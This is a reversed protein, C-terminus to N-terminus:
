HPRGSNASTWELYWSYMQRIEEQQMETVGEAMEQIMDSEGKELLIHSEMVADAHHAAMMHIFARDFEADELSKLYEVQRETPAIHRDEDTDPQICAENLLKEMQDIEEEQAEIIEESLNILEPRDTREPVLEAMEVAGHHHEVMWALYDVDAQNYELNCDKLVSDDTMGTALGSLLLASM